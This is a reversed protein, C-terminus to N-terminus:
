LGKFDQPYSQFNQEKGEILITYSLAHLYLRLAKRGGYFTDGILAHGMHAMQARIQHRLGTKLTVEVLTMDKQSDYELAKVSLEGATGVGNDRVVVKKGKEDRSDFFHTFVGELKMEGEVWCWYKKEKASTSFFERLKKYLEDSKVYIMVGSTEYDLRYLLGRDYNQSNIKLLAPRTQRIYSLCNDCEDYTLPHIFQNPNKNFVYLSEDEYITELPAGTYEPNIEGDNIFNLPLSLVAKEKFSRNLFSKAFHKKIKSGSAKFQLKLFEEVSSVPELLCYDTTKPEM